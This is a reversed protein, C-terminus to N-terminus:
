EDSALLWWRTDDSAQYTWDTSDTADTADTAESAVVVACLEEVTGVPPPPLVGVELGVSPPGVLAGVDPEGAVLVPLGDFGDDPTLEEPDAM